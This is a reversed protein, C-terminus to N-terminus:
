KIIVKKGNVINIGKQPHALRQGALNYSTYEIPDAAGYISEIGTTEGDIVISLSRAPAQSAGSFDFYGHMAYLKTNKSKYVKDQKIYYTDAPM